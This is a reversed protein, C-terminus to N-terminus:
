VIEFWFSGGRRSAADVGLRRWLPALISALDPTLFCYNVPLVIRMRASGGLLWAALVYQEAYWRDLWQPPYDEPLYVDHVHVLVGPALRPLVETFFVTVDSNQLVQHSGDFFLIDGPQLQEFRAPDITELGVREISDVLRDIQARPQPDISVLKTALEWRSVAARAFKTSHGSGIEVFQGPKRLAIMAYLAAADGPSFYRNNWYPTDADDSGDVPIAALDEALAAINRLTSAYGDRGAAMIRDVFPNVPQGHGFRVRPHVPFKLHIDMGTRKKRPEAPTPASGCAAQAILRLRRRLEALM